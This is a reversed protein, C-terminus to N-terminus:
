GDPWSREVILWGFVRKGLIKPLGELFAPRMEQFTETKVLSEPQYKPVATTEQRRRTERGLM